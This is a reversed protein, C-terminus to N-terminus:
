RTTEIILAETHGLGQSYDLVSAFRCEAVMTAVEDNGPPALDTLNPHREALLDWAHTREKLDMVERAHCGAYVAKIERLSRPEQGVSISVRDDHQLNEFKQSTRYILFYLRWGENAYGVITSQPWGDPRVTAISMIRNQSLIQLAPQEMSVGIADAVIANFGLRRAAEEQSAAIGGAEM